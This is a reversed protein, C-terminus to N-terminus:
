QVVRLTREWRAFSLMRGVASNGLRDDQMSAPMRSRDSRSPERVSFYILMPMGVVNVRPVFGWYRSDRSDDRNDGLVFYREPPVVLDGQSIEHQLETWWHADVGPDTFRSAPFNDRFADRGADVPWTAQRTYPEDLPTGNRYVVGDRLHLRDGNDGILRKVVHDDPDLPFHFVVIDGRQPERYPLLWGWHGRPSYIVKNVLLFDGVLLTREMSESPIRFPQVVFTLVFTALVMVAMLSRVRDLVIASVTVHHGSHNAPVARVDHRVEEVLVSTTVVEVIEHEESVQTRRRAFDSLDDASPNM